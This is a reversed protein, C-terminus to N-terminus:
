GVEALLRRAVYYLDSVRGGLMVDLASRGGYFPASNPRRVWGNISEDSSFLLRLAAHISLLCSVRELLDVPLVSARPPRQYKALASTDIGLLAAQETPTCEWRDLIAFAAELAAFGSCLLTQKTQHM